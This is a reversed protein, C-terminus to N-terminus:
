GRARPDASTASAASVFRKGDTTGAAAQHAAARRLAYDFKRGCAERAARDNPAPETEIAQLREGINTMESRSPLNLSTLYRGIVEGLQQQMSTSTATAKNMARTFEDSNM